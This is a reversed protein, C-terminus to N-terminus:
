IGEMNLLINTRIDETPETIDFAKNLRQMRTGSFELVSLAVGNKAEESGSSLKSTWTADALLVLLMFSFISKLAAVKM